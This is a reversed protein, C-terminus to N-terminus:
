APFVSILLFSNACNVGPFLCKGGFGRILKGLVGGIVFGVALWGATLFDQRGIIDHVYYHWVAPLMIPMSLVALSIGAAQRQEKDFFWVLIPVLLVGGGIGFMGSVAGIGLGLLILFAITM